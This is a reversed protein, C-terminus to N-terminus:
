QWILESETWQRQAKVFEKQLDVSCDEALKLLEFLVEAIKYGVDAEKDRKKFGQKQLIAASLEGLEEYVGVLSALPSKRIGRKRLVRGVWAQAESIEMKEVSGVQVYKLIRKM